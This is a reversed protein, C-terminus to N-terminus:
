AGVGVLFLDTPAPDSNTVLHCLLKDELNISFLVLLFHWWFPWPRTM